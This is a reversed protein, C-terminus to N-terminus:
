RERMKPWYTGRGTGEFFDQMGSIFEDESGVAKFSPASERYIAAYNGSQLQSHSHAAGTRAAELDHPTNCSLLMSLFFFAAAFNLRRMVTSNSTAPLNPFM